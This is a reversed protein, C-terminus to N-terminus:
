ILRLTMPYRYFQGRHAAIAALIMGVIGLIYVLPLMLLGIGCIFLAVSALGYILLSLQFNVAERGHDDIFPSEDKKILWLILAPIIPIFAHWLLATLHTLMAYTREWPEAVPDAARPAPNHPYTAEWSM